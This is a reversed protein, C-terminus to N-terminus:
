LLLSSDGYSLFRYGNELAYDYIKKWNDETFAAVLLLLTSRSQHFNTLMGNTMKFKYGPIIMIKTSARLDTLKFKEMYELVVELSQERTLEGKRNYPDWQDLFHLIQQNQNEKLKVGLWYLSEMARVSTTGVSIIQKKQVLLDQLGSKPINFHEIHMEHSTIENTKVPLFTGAGVHLTINIFNIHKGSLKKLVDETFHLGATPAAVSGEYLSYITQYRDKDLAEAERNLYPPIPTIGSFSIIESFSIEANNWEFQILRYNNRIEVTEASFVITSNNIQIEKYLCGSKWKKSNGVLCKWVVKTTSNFSISYDAPFYPELLFIEIKAGTQKQFPLRALIVKTDNFILHSEPTILSSLDTFFYSQINGKNYYLLRSTDREKNPYKAIRNEPLNYCYDRIDIKFPLKMRFPRFVISNV